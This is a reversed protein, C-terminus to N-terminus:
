SPLFRLLGVLIRERVTYLTESEQNSGLACKHLSRCSSETKENGEGM